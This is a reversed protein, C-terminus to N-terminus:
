ASDNRDRPRRVLLGYSNVSGKEGGWPELAVTVRDVEEFGHRLYLGLGQQSAETYALLGLEDAKKVVWEVLMGRDGKRQYEPLVYLEKLV